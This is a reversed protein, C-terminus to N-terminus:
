GIEGERVSSADPEEGLPNSTPIYVNKPFHDLSLKLFSEKNVALLRKLEGAWGKFAV